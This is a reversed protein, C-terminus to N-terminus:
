NGTVKFDDFATEVENFSKLGIKGHTLSDDYLTKVLSGNVYFKLESGSADVRLQNTGTGKNISSDVTWPALETFEGNIFKGISYDGNGSVIFDYYSGANEDLRFVLGYGQLDKGSMKRGTVSASFDSYDDLIWTYCSGKDGYRFVYEGNEYRSSCVQSNDPFLNPSSFDDYSSKGSINTSVTSVPTASSPGEVKLDDYATVVQAYSVAGVKGSLFSSDNVTTLLTGNIYLSISSGKATVQFINSANGKNISSNETWDILNQYQGDVVKGLYYYGTGSAGFEYGNDINQVRFIIGYGWKEPGSMKSGKITYTFDSFSEGTWAWYVKGEDNQYNMVYQGNSIKCVESEIMTGTYYSFDDSLLVDNGPTSPTYKGTLDSPTNDDTTNNTNTTNTNSSVVTEPPKKWETVVKEEPLLGAIADGTLIKHFENALVHITKTLEQKTGEKNLAKDIRASEVDIMRANIIVNGEVQFFSGVIIKKAGALKGAEVADQTAIIGSAGKSIEGLAKDLQGREVIELEGSMSLDTLFTETVLATLNKNEGQFDTVAIATKQASFAAGAHFCLAAVAVFSAFVFRASITHKKKM